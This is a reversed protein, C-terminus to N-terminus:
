KTHSGGSAASRPGSRVVLWSVSSPSQLIPLFMAPQPDEALNFYKGDEVIGVVEVRTGDKMKYHGGLANTISGFIKGAFARNVVAVRPSNKDDHWSLARGALLATGAAQFYEPSINYM